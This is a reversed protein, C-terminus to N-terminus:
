EYAPQHCGAHEGKKYKEQNNMETPRQGDSYDYVTHDNHARMAGDPKVPITGM